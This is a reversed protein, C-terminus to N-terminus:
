SVEDRWQLYEEIEESSCSPIYDKMVKQFDVLGLSIRHSDRPESQGIRPETGTGTEAGSGTGSGTGPERELNILLQKLILGEVKQFLYCIDATTYSGMEEALEEVLRTEDEESKDLATTGVTEYVRQLLSSILIKRDSLNMLGVHILRDFRGVRLFSKDVKWPENTAAILIINSSSTNVTSPTNSSTTTSPTHSFQNYLQLDDICGSLTTLLSSSSSSSSSSSDSSQSPFLAQFEDIFIICPVARKADSFINRIKQESSGIEGSMVASLKINIFSYSLHQAILSILYTKGTGPPGYLLLGHTSPLHFQSYLHSYKRPYLLTQLLLEKLDSHGVFSKHVSQYQSSSSLPPNISPSPSLPSLLSPPSRLASSFKIIQRSIDEQYRYCLALYSLSSYSSSGSFSSVLPQLM